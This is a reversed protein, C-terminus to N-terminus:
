YWQSYSVESFIEQPADRDQALIKEILKNWEPISNKWGLSFPLIQHFTSVSKLQQPISSLFTRLEVTSQFILM